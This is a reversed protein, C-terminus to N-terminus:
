NKKKLPAGCNSCERETKYNEVGCYSCVVTGMDKHKEDIVKRLIAKILESKNSKIVYGGQGFQISIINKFFDIDNIYTVDTISKDFMFELSNFVIRETTIYFEGTKMQIEGYSLHNLSVREAFYCTENPLLILNTVEVKKLGETEVKKRMKARNVKNVAVQEKLLKTRITFLIIGLVITIIICPFNDDTYYIMVSMLVFTFVVMLISTSKEKSTMEKSYYLADKFATVVDIFWGIGFFGITFLYLLGTRVDGQMFKHVGFPGLFLIILFDVWKAM